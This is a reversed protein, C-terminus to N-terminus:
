NIYIIFEKINLEIKSVHYNFNNKSIFTEIDKLNKQKDIKDEVSCYWGAPTKDYKSANIQNIITCNLSLIYKELAEDM